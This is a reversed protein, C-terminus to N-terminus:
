VGFECEYDVVWYECLLGCCDECVYCLWVFVVVDCECFLGVVVWGCEFLCVGVVVLGGGIVDVWM